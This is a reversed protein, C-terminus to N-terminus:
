AVVGGSVLADIEDLPLGLESSLVASTHEGLWPPRADPRGTAASMRVPNGPVLVPQGVGDTRPIGVLMGRAAVHPDAVLEHDALCPGAPIGAAALARCADLKTMTGSWAEIAPRLVQDLHDVWGQRTGFRLDDVWEPHGILEVLRAFHQERGVQLVYWGDAARFGDM